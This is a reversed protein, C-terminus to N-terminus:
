LGKKNEGFLIKEKQNKFEDDNILKLDLLSKWEKILAIDKNPIFYDDRNLSKDINKEWIARQVEELNDRKKESLIELGRLKNAFWTYDLLEGAYPELLQSSIRRGLELEYKEQELIKEKLFKSKEEKDKLEYELINISEALKLTKEKYSNYDILLDELSKELNERELSLDSIIREPFALSM